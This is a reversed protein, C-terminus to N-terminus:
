ARINSIRALINGTRTSSSPDTETTSNGIGRIPGPSARGGRALGSTDGGSSLAPAKAENSASACSSIRTTPGASGNCVPATLPIAAFVLFRKAVALRELKGADVPQDNHLPTARAQRREM